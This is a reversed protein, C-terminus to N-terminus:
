VDSRQHRGPGLNGAGTKNLAGSGGLSGSITALDGQNPTDITSTPDTLTVTRAADLVVNGSTQLTGAGITVSGSGLNNANGIALM